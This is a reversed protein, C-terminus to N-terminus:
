HAIFKLTDVMNYNNPYVTNVSVYLQFGYTPFPAFTMAEIGAAGISGITINQGTQLNVSDLYDSPLPQGNIIVFRQNIAIHNGGNISYWATWHNGLSNTSVEFGWWYGVVQPPTVPQPSAPTLTSKQCSTFLMFLTLLLLLSGKLIVGKTKAVSKVNSRTINKCIAYDGSVTYHFKVDINYKQLEATVEEEMGFVPPLALKSEGNETLFKCTTRAYDIFIEENTM